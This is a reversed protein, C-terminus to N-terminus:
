GLDNPSNFKKGQYNDALVKVTGDSETRVLNRGGHQCSLLNGKLDLLNGNSAEVKRWDKIGEKKTWQLQLSRPSDSFVLRNEKAIWVPGETFKMDTGLQEVTVGEGM